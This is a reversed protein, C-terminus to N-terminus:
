RPAAASFAAPARNQDFLDPLGAGGVVIDRGPRPFACGFAQPQTGVALGPAPAPLPPVPMRGGAIEVGARQDAQAGAIRGRRAQSEDCRNGQV